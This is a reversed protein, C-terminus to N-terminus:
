VRTSGYERMLEWKLMTNSGLVMAGDYWVDIRKELREFFESEGEPNFSEDRRITREGGNELIKKKYVFNKDTKYNFFLVNVVSSNYITDSTPTYTSYEGSWSTSLNSIEEIDATTLNPNIKKLETIPIKKVEGWYFCDSFDPQESYSYITEAPDVNEITIGENYSYSHKIIGIGLTTVDYNFVNKKEHFDNMDFVTSIALEEAIEISPKYEMQMHLQLEQESQPLKDPPTTFGDIGLKEKTESLIDKALMDKELSEQYSNRIEASMADEAFARPTFMRNSMGNVIIDVFKPVVAPPQWNLNLQSLDGNIEMGKKYKGISQEGRAYLRLNHFSLQQDYYKCKGGDKNFWEYQIAQGVKLGFEVTAKEADPVNYSPFTASTVLPSKKNM